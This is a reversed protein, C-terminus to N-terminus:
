RYPHRCPYHLWTMTSSGARGCHRKPRKGAPSTGPWGWSGPPNGAPPTGRAPENVAPTMIGAGFRVFIISFGSSFSSQGLYDRSLPATRAAHDPSHAPRGSM